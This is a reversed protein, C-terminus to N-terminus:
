SEESEMENKNWSVHYGMNISYKKCVALVSLKVRYPKPLKKYISDIPFYTLGFDVPDVKEPTKETRQLIFVEKGNPFPSMVMSLNPDLPNVRNAFAIIDQASHALGRLTLFYYTLPDLAVISLFKALDLSDQPVDRLISLYALAMQPLIPRFKFSSIRDIFENNVLDGKSQMENRSDQTLFDIVSFDAVMTGISDGQIHSKLFDIFGDKGIPSDDFRYITNEQREPCPCMFSALYENNDKAVGIGYESLGNEELQPLQKGDEPTYKQSFLGSFNSIDHLTALYILKDMKGFM